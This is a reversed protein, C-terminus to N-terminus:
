IMTRTRWSLSRTLKECYRNRNLLRYIRARGDDRKSIGSVEANSVKTRESITVFKRPEENFDEDFDSESMLFERNRRTPESFPRPARNGSQHFAADFALSDMHFNERYQPYVNELLSVGPFHACRRSYLHRFANIGPGELYKRTIEISM